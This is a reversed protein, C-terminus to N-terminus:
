QLVIVFLTTTVMISLENILNPVDSMSINDCGVFPTGCVFTNHVYHRAISTYPRPTLLGFQLYRHPSITLLSTVKQMAESHVRLLWLAATKIDSCFQCVFLGRMIHVNHAYGHSPVRWTQYPIRHPYHSDKPACTLSTFHIPIPIQVRYAHTTRSWGHARNGLGFGRFLVPVTLTRKIM